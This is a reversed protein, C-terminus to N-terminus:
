ILFPGPAELGQWQLSHISKSDNFLVNFLFHADMIFRADCPEPTHIFAEQLSDM